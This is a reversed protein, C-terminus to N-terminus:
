QQIRRVLSRKLFPLELLRKQKRCLTKLFLLCGVTNTGKQRVSVDVINEYNTYEPFCNLIKIIFYTMSIHMLCAKQHGNLRKRTVSSAVATIGKLQKTNKFYNFESKLFSVAVCGHRDDPRHIISSTRLPSKMDTMLVTLEEVCVQKGDLRGTLPLFVESAM